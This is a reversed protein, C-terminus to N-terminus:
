GTAPSSSAATRVPPSLPTGPGLDTVAFTTLPDASATASLGIPVLIAMAVLRLSRLYLHRVVKQGGQGPFEHDM